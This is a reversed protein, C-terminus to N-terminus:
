KLTRRILKIYVYLLQGVNVKNKVTIVQTLPMKFVFQLISTKETNVIKSTQSRKSSKARSIQGSVDCAIQITNM